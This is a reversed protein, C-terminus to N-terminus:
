LLYVTWPKPYLGDFNFLSYPSPTTSRSSSQASSTTRLQGYRVGDFAHLAAYCVATTKVRESLLLSTLYKMSLSTRTSPLSAGRASADYAALM